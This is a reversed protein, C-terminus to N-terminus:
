QLNVTGAKTAMLQWNQAATLGTSDACTITITTPSSFTIAAQLAGPVFPVDLSTGAAIHDIITGGARLNCYSQAPGMSSYNNIVLKAAITYSGAPVLLTAVQTQASPPCVTQDCLLLSTGTGANVAYVDGVSPKVMPAASLTFQSAFGAILICIGGIVIGLHRM